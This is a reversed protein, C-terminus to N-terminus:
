KCVFEPSHPYVFFRHSRAPIDWQFLLMWWRLFRTARAHKLLGKLNNGVLAVGIGIKTQYQARRFDRRENLGSLERVDANQWQLIGQEAPWEANELDNAVRKGDEVFGDAFARFRERFHAGALFQADDGREAVSERHWFG